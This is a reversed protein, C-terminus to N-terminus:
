ISDMENLKALLKIKEQLSIIEAERQILKMALEEQANILYPNSEGDWALFGTLTLGFIDAIQELRSLNIDTIGTEVKSYAPTSMGLKKAIDEQNWDKRNRLLRLKKGATM